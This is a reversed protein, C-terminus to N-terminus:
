NEGAEIWKGTENGCEQISIGRREEEESRKERRKYRFNVCPM